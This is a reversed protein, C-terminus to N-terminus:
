PELIRRLAVDTMTAGYRVTHGLAKWLLVLQFVGSLEDAQSTRLYASAADRTKKDASKRMAIGVKKGFSM